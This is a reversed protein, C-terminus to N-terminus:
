DNQEESDEGPIPKNLMRFSQLLNKDSLPIIEGEDMNVKSKKLYPCEKINPFECVNKEKLCSNHFRDYTCFKHGKLYPCNNNM